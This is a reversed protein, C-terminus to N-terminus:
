SGGIAAPRPHRGNLALLAAPIVTAAAAVIVLTALGAASLLGAALVSVVAAAGISLFDSLGVLRARESPRAEDALVATAAVFALNWGLGIAFMAPVITALSVSPLFALVGLTLVFLGILIARQRGLRDVVQGVVLVLGFMGLFHASLSLAVAALDHGHDVMVLGVLTMMGVMVAQSTVAALLAGAIVPIALFERLSRASRDDPATTANARLRRGIVIPDIRIAFTIGLGLALLAAAVLWPAALGALDGRVGTLLPAFAVPAAIAGIAAGALVYSIGRARREPPYMDAGAARALNIAGASFGLLVLAALFLLPWGARVGLYTASAGVVGVLFGIAIGLRRGSRDMLRGVALAAGASGLFFVAPAVGAVAAQGSLRTFTVTALTAMLQNVAWILAMAGALVVTNRRVASAISPDALGAAQDASIM